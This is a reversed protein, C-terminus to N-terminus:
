ASTTGVGVVILGLAVDLCVRQPDAITQAPPAQYVPAPTYVPPAPTPAPALQTQQQGTSAVVHQLVSADVLNMMLMAQFTAYALQPSAM